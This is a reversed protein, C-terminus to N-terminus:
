LDAGGHEEVRQEERRGGQQWLPLPGGHIRIRATDATVRKALEVAYLRVGPLNVPQRTLLAVLPKLVRIREIGVHVGRVAQM